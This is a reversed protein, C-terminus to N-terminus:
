LGSGFANLTEKEPKQLKVTWERPGWTAFPTKKKELMRSWSRHCVYRRRRTYFVGTISVYVQRPFRFFFLCTHRPEFVNTSRMLQERVVNRKLVYM